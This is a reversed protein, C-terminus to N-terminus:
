KWRMKQGGHKGNGMKWQQAVRGEMSVRKGWLRQEALTLDEDDNHKLAM